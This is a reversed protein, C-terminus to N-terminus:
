DRIILELTHEIPGGEVGSVEVAKKEPWIRGAVIHVAKLRDAISIKEWGTGDCSQCIRTLVEGDKDTYTTRKKGHCTGCPVLGSIIRALLEQIDAGPFKALLSKWLEDYSRDRVNRVGQQRGGTKIGKAM